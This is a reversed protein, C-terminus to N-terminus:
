ASEGNMGNAGLEREKPTNPTFPPTFPAPKPLRWISGGGFGAREALVGIRISARQVTRWALGADVADEHITEVQHEQFDALEGNLWGEAQNTAEPKPGPKSEIENSQALADDASMDVPNKEWSVSPPNGGITFALGMPRICCNMKGPLMLRRTKDHEDESFHWVARAIGVFGVSGLVAEDAKGGKLKRVHMILLVTVGCKEALKGVPTLISRIENDKHANIEGGLFSGIPDIIILKCDPLRRLADELAPINALTFMAEFYEGTAANQHKLCKLVNVRSADAKAADLRPRIDEDLLDEATILLVDGRPANGFGDPWPSGTTIRSVIDMSTMGKGIGPAGAFITIRKSPLHGPWLWTTTKPSVDAMNVLVPGTAQEPRAQTDADGRLHEPLVPPPEGKRAPNLIKWALREQEIDLPVASM